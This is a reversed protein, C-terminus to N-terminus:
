LYKNFAAFFGYFSFLVGIRNLTNYIVLHDLLNTKKRSQLLMKPYTFDLVLTQGM